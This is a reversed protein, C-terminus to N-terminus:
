VSRPKQPLGTDRGVGIGGPGSPPGRRRGAMRLAGWAFAAAAVVLLLVWLWTSPGAGPERGIPAPMQAQALAPLLLTLYPIWTRM